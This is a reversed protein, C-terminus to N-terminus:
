LTICQYYYRTVTVTYAAAAIWINPLNDIKEM